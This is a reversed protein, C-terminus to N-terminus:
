RDSFLQEAMLGAFESNDTVYRAFLEEILQEGAQIGLQSLRFMLFEPPDPYGHAAMYECFWVVMKKCQPMGDAQWGEYATLIAGCASIYDTGNITKVHREIM